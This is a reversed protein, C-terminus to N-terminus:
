AELMRRAVDIVHARREALLEPSYPDGGAIMRAVQPFAFWFSVMGMITALAHRADVAPDAHGSRQATRITSVYTDLRECREAENPVEDLGFDLAEWALLRSIWPNAAHLDFVEGVIEPLKEPDMELEALAAMKCELVNRFLASKDAYYHYLLAKNVGAKHAIEDVRTGAFGRAAFEGFAAELIRQKTAAADRTQVM